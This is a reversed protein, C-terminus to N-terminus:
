LNGLQNKALNSNGSAHFISYDESIELLRNFNEVQCKKRKPLDKKGVQVPQCWGPLAM